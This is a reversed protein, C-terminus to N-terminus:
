ELKIQEVKESCEVSGSVKWSRVVVFLGEFLMQYKPTHTMGYSWSSLAM